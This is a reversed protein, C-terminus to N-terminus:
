EEVDDLISDEYSSDDEEAYFQIPSQSISDNPQRDFHWPLQRKTVTINTIPRLPLPTSFTPDIAFKLFFLL